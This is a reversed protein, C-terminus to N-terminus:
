IYDGYLVTRILAGGWCWLELEDLALKMGQQEINDVIAPLPKDLLEYYLM